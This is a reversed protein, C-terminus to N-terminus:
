YLLMILLQWRRLVVIIDRLMEINFNYGPENNLGILPPIDTDIIHQAM